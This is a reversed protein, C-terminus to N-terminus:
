QLSTHYGLDDRERLLLALAQPNYAINDDTKICPDEYHFAGNEKVLVLAPVQNVPYDQLLAQGYASRTEIYYINELGDTDSNIDRYIAECDKCGFKYYIIIDGPQATKLKDMVPTTRIHREVSTSFIGLPNEQYGCTYMRMVGMTLTLTTIILAPWIAALKLGRSRKQKLWIFLLVITLIIVSWAYASLRM